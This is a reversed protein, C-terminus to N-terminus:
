LADMVENDNSGNKGAKVQMNELEHIKKVRDLHRGGEFSTSIFVEVMEKAVEIGTVRGGIALINANNHQRSMKATYYDHCLACRVGKVKNAAISIGIGSGCVVIGMVFPISVNPDTSVKSAVKSGYVPYDCREPNNCGADDIEIHVNCGEKDFKQKLHAVIQQKMDFGAHDSGIIIKQPYSM